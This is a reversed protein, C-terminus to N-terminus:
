FPRNGVQTLARQISGRQRIDKLVVNVIYREGDFRQTTQATELPITSQNNLEIRIMTDGNRLVGRGRDIVGGEHFRPLESIYARLDTFSRAGLNYRHRPDTRTLIEEGKELVAVTEQPRLVGEHRETLQGVIGGSHGKKGLGFSGLLGKGTLAGGPGIGLARLLNATITARTLIRTMDAIIANAFDKFGREGGTALDVIADEIANVGSEALQTAVRIRDVNDKQLGAIVRFIHALQRANVGIAESLNDFAEEAAIAEQVAVKAEDSRRRAAKVRSRDADSSTENLSETLMEQLRTADAEERAARAVRDAARVRADAYDNAIKFKAKFAARDEEHLGVMQKLQDAERQKAEIRRQIGLLFDEAAHVQRSLDPADTDLESLLTRANRAANQARVQQEIAKEDVQLQDQAIALAEQALRVRRGQEAALREAQDVQGQSSTRAKSGEEFQDRAAKTQEVLARARRHDEIRATLERELQVSRAQLQVRREFIAIQVSREFEPLGAIEVEFRARKTALRTARDLQDAFERVRRTPDDLSLSIEKFSKSVSKGTGKSNEDLKSLADHVRNISDELNKIREDLVDLEQQRAREFLFRKIRPLNPVPKSEVQARQKQLQALENEADRIARGSATLRSTTNEAEEAIRKLRDIIKEDTAKEANKGWLAWATIGLTIAATALGVWGGLLNFVSGAIRAIRTTRSLNTALASEAAALALTHKRLAIRSRRLAGAIRIRQSNGRALSATAAAEAILGQRRAASVALSSAANRATERSAAILAVRTDRIRRVIRVGFGTLLATGVGVIGLELLKFQEAVPVFMATLGEGVARSQSAIQNQVVLLRLANAEAFKGAEQLLAIQKKWEENAIALARDVEGINEALVGMIEAIRTPPQEGGFLLTLLGGRNLQDASTVNELNSLAEFLVRLAATFDGSVIAKNLTEFSEGAADAVAKLKSLDGSAAESAANTLARLTRQFVTGAKEARAGSQGLVASYALITRASFEFEATSRAIDEALAIIAREGGRFQNGLATLVSGLRGVQQFTADTNAIILGLANAAEQGALDTTLGMLAVTETFRVINPVGQVRMQGAVEAIDLLAQATVPLPRNLASTTTLLRDFRQGLRHTEEDTLGTTKQVAVLGKEWDLFTQVNGSVVRRLGEVGAAYAATAIISSRLSSTFQNVLQSQRSATQGVAAYSRALRTNTARVRGAIAQYQADDASFDVRAGGVRISGSPM